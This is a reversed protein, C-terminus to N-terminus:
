IYVRLGKCFGAFREDRESLRCGDALITQIGGPQKAECLRGRHETTDVHVRAANSENVRVKRRRSLKKDNCIGGIAKYSREYVQLNRYGSAEQQM